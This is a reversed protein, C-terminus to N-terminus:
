ITSGYKEGLSIAYQFAERSNESNDTPLLIKKILTSM